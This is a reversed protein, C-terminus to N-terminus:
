RHVAALASGAIAVTVLPVLAEALALALRPLGHPAVSQWLAAHIELAGGVDRAARAGLDAWRITRGAVYRRADDALIAPVADAVLEALAAALAPPFVKGVVDSTCAPLAHRELLTGDAALTAVHAYRADGFWLEARPEAGDHDVLRAPSGDREYAVGDLVVRELGDRLEAHGGPLAVREHPAPHFDIAIPERARRVMRELAGETFAAETGATRFSRALTRWLAATPYPGAYRLAPIGADAALRALVNMLAGGAGPPLAGPAAIAPIERPAAWDIASIATGALRHAPGLLPDEIVEGELVAGPVALRHLRPAESGTWALEAWVYGTRDVVRELPM